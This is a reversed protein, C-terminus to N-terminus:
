EEDEKPLMAAEADKVAEEYLQLMADSEQRDATDMRRRRILQRITKTDFGEGKAEAYVEKVDEGLGRKEEELREVREVFSYLRRNTGNNSGKRLAEANVAVPDYEDAPQAAAQKAADKGWTAM